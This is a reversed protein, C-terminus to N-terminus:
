GQDPDNGIVTEILKKRAAEFERMADRSMREAATAAEEAQKANFSAKRYAFYAARFKREAAQLPTEISADMIADLTIGGFTQPDVIDGLKEAYAIDGRQPIGVPQGVFAERSTLWDDCVEGAADMREAKLKSEQQDIVGGPRVCDVFAQDEPTINIGEKAYAEREAQATNLAAKGAPTDVDVVHGPEGRGFVPRATEREDRPNYATGDSNVRVAEDQKAAQGPTFVEDIITGVTPRPFTSLHMPVCMAETATMAGFLPALLLQEPKHKRDIWLGATPLLRYHTAWDPAQDWRIAEAVRMALELDKRGQEIERATLGAENTASESLTM